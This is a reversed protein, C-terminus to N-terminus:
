AAAGGDDWGALRVLTAESVGRGSLVCLRGNRQWTVVPAGHERLLRYEVGGRWVITGGSVAPAPTGGVIAYGIRSGSQSSYFVTTVQRGGMTDTRAGSAHWGFRKEWYPFAVGDVAADLQAAHATSEHPARMTAARLTLASAAGMSPPNQTAGGTLLAIAAGAVAAVAMAALTPRLRGGLMGRGTASRGARGRPADAMEQVQRHLRQPARVDVARLMEAVHEHEARESPTPTRSDSM